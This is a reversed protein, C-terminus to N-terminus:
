EFMRSSWTGNGNFAMENVLGSRTRIVRSDECDNKRFMNEQNRHLYVHSIKGFGHEHTPIKSQRSRTPPKETPLQNWCHLIKISSTWRWREKTCVDNIEIDTISLIILPWSYSIFICYYHLLTILNRELLSCPATQQSKENTLHFLANSVYM